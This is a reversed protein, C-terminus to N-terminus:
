GPEPDILCVGTLLAGNLIGVKDFSELFRGFIPRRSMRSTAERFAEPLPSGLSRSLTRSAM